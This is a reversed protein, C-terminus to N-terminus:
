MVHYIFNAHVVVASMTYGRMKNPDSFSWRIIIQGALPGDIPVKLMSQPFSYSSFLDLPTESSDKKRTIMILPM